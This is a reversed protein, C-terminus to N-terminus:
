STPDWREVQVGLLVGEPNVKITVNQWGNETIVKPITFTTDADENLEVTKEAAYVGDKTVGAVRIPLQGIPQAPSLSACLQAVADTFHNTGDKGIFSNVSTTNSVLATYVRRVLGTDFDALRQRTDGTYYEEFNM